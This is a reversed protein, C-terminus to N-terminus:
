KPREVEFKKGLAVYGQGGLRALPDIAGADITWRCGNQKAAADDVWVSLLRGLILGQRAGGIETISYKKCYFAVKPGVLRPLRWGEVVTTSMSALEIESEGYPLATATTTVAGALECPPIHLIFDEREDINKWTDKRSGDEKHGVSIMVLPPDSCVGNFYSFPALNFKGNGNDSLVWAIPRPVITQTMIHYVQNPSFTTLDIKM